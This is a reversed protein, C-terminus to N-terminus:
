YHDFKKMLERKRAETKARREIRRIANHMGIGQTLDRKKVPNTKTPFFSSKIESQKQRFVESELPVTLISAPLSHRKKRRIYNSEPIQNLSFSDDDDVLDIKIIPIERKIKTQLENSTMASFFLLDDNVTQVRSFQFPHKRLQM